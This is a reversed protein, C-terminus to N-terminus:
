AYVMLPRKRARVAAGVAVPLAEEYVSSVDMCANVRTWTAVESDCLAEYERSVGELVKAREYRGDAVKLDANRKAVREMARSVPLSLYVTADPCVAGRDAEVVWDEDLGRAGVGYARSSGVYRDVVVTTGGLLLGELAKADERRDIAFLLHASGPTLEEEGMMYRGLRTSPGCDVPYKRVVTRVGRANLGAALLGALTTKGSGDIGEIAVLAGRGVVTKTDMAGRALDTVGAKRDM